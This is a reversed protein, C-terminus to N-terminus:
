RIWLGPRVQLPAKWLDLLCIEGQKKLCLVWEGVGTPLVASLITDPFLPYIEKGCARQWKYPFKLKDKLIEFLGDGFGKPAPSSQTLRANCGSQASAERSGLLPWPHMEWLMGKELPGLHPVSTFGKTFKPLLPWQGRPTTAPSSETECCSGKVEQSGGDWHQQSFSNTVAEGVGRGSGLERGESGKYTIYM